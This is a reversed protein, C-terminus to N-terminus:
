CAGGKKGGVLAGVLAGGAAPVGITMADKKKTAPAVAAWPRTSMRCTESENAPAIRTFRVEGRGIGAPATHDDAGGAFFPPSRSGAACSAPRQRATLAFGPQTSWLAGYSFRRGSGEDQVKL